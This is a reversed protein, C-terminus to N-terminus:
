SYFQMIFGYFTKGEVRGAFKKVVLILFSFNKKKKKEKPIFIYDVSTLM